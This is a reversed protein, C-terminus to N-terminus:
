VELVPIRDSDSEVAVEAIVTLEESFGETKLSATVKVTM